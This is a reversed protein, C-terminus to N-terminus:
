KLSTHRNRYRTVLEIKSSIPHQKLWEAYSPGVKEITCRVVYAFGKEQPQVLDREVCSESLYVSDYQEDNWKIFYGGRRKMLIGQVTKGILAALRGEKKESDSMEGQPISLQANCVVRKLGIPTCEFPLKRVVQASEGSNMSGDSLVVGIIIINSHSTSM